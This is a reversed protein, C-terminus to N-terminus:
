NNEFCLLNFLEGYAEFWRKSGYDIDRPLIRYSYEATRNIRSDNMSITGHDPDESDASYCWLASDM